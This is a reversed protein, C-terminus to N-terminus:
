EAALEPRRSIVLDIFTSEDQRLRIRVPLYRLAPAVWMEATLNGPRATRQPKVHLTDIEGFPTWLPESEGVVYAWPEVDGPMALPFAIVRGAQRLEPRTNFLYSVQVFQSASDQVGPGAARRRGNTFRVTEGDFHLTARHRPRFAMKSDQDFREPALGDDALRGESSMRRTFLPAVPLGVVADLHVQYRSGQKIWEVQATGHLEGRFNGTLVYSLRTSRPWAFGPPASAAVAPASAQAAAAAAESSEPASAPPDPATAADAVVAPEDRQAPADPAPIVPEAAPEPAPASAPAAPVPAARRRARPRKPPSPAPQAAPPAELAMERVYVVQLRAPMDAAARWDALHQGVQWAVCGHVALVVAVVGLRALRRAAAAPAPPPTLRGDM